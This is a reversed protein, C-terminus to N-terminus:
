IDTIWRGKELRQTVKMVPLDVGLDGFHPTVYADRTEANTKGVAKKGTALASSKAQVATSPMELPRSFTCMSKGLTALWAPNIKTIAPCGSFTTLQAIPFKPLTSSVAFGSKVLAFSKESYLLIPLHVERFVAQRISTSTKQYEWRETLFVKRPRSDVVLLV